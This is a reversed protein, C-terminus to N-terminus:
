TLEENARPSKDAEPPRLNSDQGRLLTFILHRKQPM